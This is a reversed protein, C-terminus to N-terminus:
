KLYEATLEDVLQRLEPNNLDMYKTDLKPIRLKQGETIRGPHDIVDRNAEYIFVWLDKIGYYKFSIWTLRSDKNVVETGIFSNYKRPLSALTHVEAVETVITEKVKNIEEVIRESVEEEVAIVESLNEEVTTEVIEETIVEEATPYTTQIGPMNSYVLDNEPAYTITRPELPKITGISKAPQNTNQSEINEIEEDLEWFKISEWWGVITDDLNWSQITSRLDLSKISNCLEDFWGEKKPTNDQNQIYKTNTIIDHYVSSKIPKEMISTCQWWGVIEERYYVGTGITSALIMAIFVWWMWKCSCACKCKKNETMPAIQAPEEAKPEEAKKTSDKVKKAKPKKEASKEEQPTAEEKTEKLEGVPAQGLEALIDVIEDAQEGLKKMPDNQLTSLVDETAPKEIRKEVSEKLTSEASFTLKNYGEITFDEGTAINVSKRPAVAKLSFVGLGKIKVLKDAKLGEIVSELLADLFKEAEQETCHAHEVIAKRLEQWTIKSNAM